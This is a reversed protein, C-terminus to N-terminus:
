SVAPQLGMGAVAAAQAIKRPPPNQNLYERVSDLTVDIARLVNAAFPDETLVGLLIHEPAITVDDAHAHADAWLLARRASDALPLPLAATSMRSTAHSAKRPRTPAAMTRTALRQILSRDARMLGILLHEVQLQRAGSECAVHNALYLANKAAESFPRNQNTDQEASWAV